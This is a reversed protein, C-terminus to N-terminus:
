VTMIKKDKLMKNESNKVDIVYDVRVFIFNFLLIKQM